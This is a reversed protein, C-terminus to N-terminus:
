FYLVSKKCIRGDRTDTNLSADVIQVHRFAYRTCISIAHALIIPLHLVAGATIYLM